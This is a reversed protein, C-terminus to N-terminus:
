LEFTALIAEFLDPAKPSLPGNGLDIAGSNFFAVAFSNPGFPTMATTMQVPTPDGFSKAWDLSGDPALVVVFADDDGLSTLTRDGISMSGRYRYGWLIRGDPTTSFGPALPLPDPSNQDTTDGFQKSWVHKGSGSIKWVFFDNDTAGSTTLTATAGSIDVLRLGGSFTGTVAFAGTPDITVADVSVDGSGGATVLNTQDGTDTLRLVFGDRNGDAQASGSGATFISGEFTGAAVVNGTSDTTVARVEQTGDPYGFSTGDGIPQAWVTEFTEHAIRAVFGAQGSTTFAFGQGLDIADDYNGTVVADGNPFVAIDSFSPSADGIKRAGTPNGDADLRAVFTAAAM